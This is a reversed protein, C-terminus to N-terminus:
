WVSESGEADVPSVLFCVDSILVWVSIKHSAAKRERTTYHSLLGHKSQAIGSLAPPNTFLPNAGYCLARKLGGSPPIWPSSCICLWLYSYQGLPPIFGFAITIPVWIIVWVSNEEKVHTLRDVPLDIFSIRPYGRYRETSRWHLADHRSM